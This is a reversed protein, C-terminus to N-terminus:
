PKGANKFLPNLAPTKELKTFCKILRLSVGVDICSDSAFICGCRYVCELMDGCLCVHYM